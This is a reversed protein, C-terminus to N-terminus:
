TKESLSGSLTQAASKCLIGTEQPNKVDNSQWIQLDPNKSAAKKIYELDLPRTLRVALNVKSWGKEVALIRNGKRLESRLIIKLEPCLEDPIPNNM